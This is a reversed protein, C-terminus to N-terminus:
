WLPIQLVTEEAGWRALEEATLWRMGGGPYGYTSLINESLAQQTEAFVGNWLEHKVPVFPAYLDAGPVGFKNIM